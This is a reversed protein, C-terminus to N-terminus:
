SLLDVLIRFIGSQYEVVVGLLFSLLSVFVSVVATQNYFRTQREQKSNHRRVEQSESQAEERAELVARGLPTIEILGEPFVLTEEEIPIVLTKPAKVLKNELLYLLTSPDPKLAEYTVGKEGKEWARTLEKLIQVSHKDLLIM